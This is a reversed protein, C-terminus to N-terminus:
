DDKVKKNWLYLITGYYISFFFIGLPLIVKWFNYLIDPRGDYKVFVTVVSLFTGLVFAVLSSRVVEVLIRNVPIKKNAELVYNSLLFIKKGEFNVLIKNIM